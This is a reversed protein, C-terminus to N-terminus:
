RPDTILQGPFWPTPPTSVKGRDRWQASALLHWRKSRSSLSPLFYVIAIPFSWPHANAHFRASCECLRSPLPGEFANTHTRSCRYLSLLFGLACTCCRYRPVNLSDLPRGRQTLQGLRNASHRCQRVHRLRHWCHLCWHLLHLLRSAQRRRHHTSRRRGHDRGEHDFPDSSGFDIVFGTNKSGSMFTVSTGVKICFAKNEKADPISPKATAYSGQSRRIDISCPSSASGCTNAAACISAPNSASCVDGKVKKKTDKGIIFSTLLLPLVFLCCLVALYRYIKM